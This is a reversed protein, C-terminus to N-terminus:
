KIARTKEVPQLNRSPLIVYLLPGVADLEPTFASGAKIVYTNISQSM